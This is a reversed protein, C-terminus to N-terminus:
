GSVQQWLAKVRALVEAVPVGSTDVVVADAAPMLPAVAREKDRADRQALEQYLAAMNVNVGKEKLQKHRRSVREDLSATLFIKLKADPFVVTGMDRGDAVLGPPQCFARQRELLASRVMPIVAVKSADNGCEESRIVDTVEEGELFIRTTAGTDDGTFQVDLHAALTELGVADGFPISHWRAALGVLRYLAGSDLFHWDLDQALLRSITGKGSGGPGDITIVPPKEEIM